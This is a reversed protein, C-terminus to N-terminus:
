VTPKDRGSQSETAGIFLNSDVSFGVNKLKAASNKTFVYDEDGDVIFDLIQDGFKMELGAITGFQNRILHVCDLPLNLFRNYPEQHSRDFLGWKGHKQVFKQNTESLPETFPDQWPENRIHLTEGDGKGTLHLTIDESFILELPGKEFDTENNHVYCIRSITAIQKGLCSNLPTIYEEM